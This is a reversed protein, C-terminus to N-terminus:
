LKVGLDVKLDAPLAYWDRGNIKHFGKKLAVLEIMWLTSNESSVCVPCIQDCSAENANILTISLEPM